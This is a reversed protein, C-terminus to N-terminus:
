SARLTSFILDVIGINFYPIHAQKTCKQRNVGPAISRTNYLSIHGIVCGLVFLGLSIFSFFSMLTETQSVSARKQMFVKASHSMCNMEMTRFQVETKVTTVSDPAVCIVFVREFVKRAARKQRHDNNTSDSRGSYFTDTVWERRINDFLVIELESQLSISIQSATQIFYLISYFMILQVLVLCAFLYIICIIVDLGANEKKKKIDAKYALEIAWYSIICYPVQAICEESPNSMWMDYEKYLLKATLGETINWNIM